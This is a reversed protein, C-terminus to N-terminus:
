PKVEAYAEGFQSRAVRRPPAFLILGHKDTTVVRVRGDRAYGVIKVYLAARGTRAIRRWVSGLPLQPALGGAPEIPAHLASATKV